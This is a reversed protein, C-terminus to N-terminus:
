LHYGSPDLHELVFKVFGDLIQGSISSDTLNTEVCDVRVGGPGSPCTWAAPVAGRGTVVAVTLVPGQRGPRAPLIRGALCHM